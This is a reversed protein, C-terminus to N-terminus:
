ETIAQTVIHLHGEPPQIGPMTSDFWEDTSLVSYQTSFVSLAEDVSQKVQTVVVGVKQRDEQPVNKIQSTLKALEKLALKGDEQSKINKATNSQFELLLSILNIASMIESM